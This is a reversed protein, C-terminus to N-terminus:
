PQFTKLAKDISQSSRGTLSWGKETSTPSSHPDKGVYNDRQLSSGIMPGESRLPLDLGHMLYPSVAPPKQTRRSSMALLNEKPLPKGEGCVGPSRPTLIFSERNSGQPGDLALSFLQKSFSEM